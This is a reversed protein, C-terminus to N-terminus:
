GQSSKIQEQFTQLAIGLSELKSIMRAMAPQITKAEAPPLSLSQECLKAVDEDLHSLPIVQGKELKPHADEIFQTLDDLKKTINNAQTNM